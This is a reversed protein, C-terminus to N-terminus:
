KAVSASQEAHFIVQETAKFVIANNKCLIYVATWSHKETKLHFLNRFTDTVLVFKKWELQIRMMYREASFWNSM